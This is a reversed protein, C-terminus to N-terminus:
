PSTPPLEPGAWGKKPKGNWSPRGKYQEREQPTLRKRPQRSKKPPEPKSKEVAPIHRVLGRIAWALAKQDREVAYDYATRQGQEKRRALYDRERYLRNLLQRLVATYVWGEADAKGLYWAQLEDMVGDAENLPPIMTSSM